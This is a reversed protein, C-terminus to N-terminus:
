LINCVRGRPPRIGDIAPVWVAWVINVVNELRNTHQLGVALDLAQHKRTSRQLACSIKCSVLSSLLTFSSSSQSGPQHDWNSIPSSGGCIRSPYSRCHFWCPNRMLTHAAIIGGALPGLSLSAPATCKDPVTRFKRLVVAFISPKNNKRREKKREKKM